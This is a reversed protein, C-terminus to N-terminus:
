PYPLDLIGRGMSCVMFKLSALPSDFALAGRSLMLIRKPM